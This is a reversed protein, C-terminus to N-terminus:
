FSHSQHSLQVYTRPGIGFHIPFCNYPPKTINGKVDENQREPKDWGSSARQITSCGIM